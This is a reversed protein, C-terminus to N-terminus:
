EGIGDLMKPLIVVVVILFTVMMGAPTWMLKWLSLPERKEYYEQISLPSLVLPDPLLRRPDEVYAARVQGRLRASVDLRVPPFYVGMAVVEVLHTGPAVESFSFYGDLRPITMRVGGDLIVKTESPKTNLGDLRIRGEVIYKETDISLNEGTGVINPVTASATWLMLCVTFIQHLCRSKM